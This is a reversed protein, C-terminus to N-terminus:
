SNASSHDRAQGKHLQLRVKASMDSMLLGEILSANSERQEGTAGEV